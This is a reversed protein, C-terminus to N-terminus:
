RGSGEEAACGGRSDAGAIAAARSGDGAIAVCGGLAATCDVFM